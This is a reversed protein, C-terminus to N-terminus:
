VAPEEPEPEGDVVEPAPEVEPTSEPEVPAEVPEDQPTDESPESLVAIVITDSNLTFPFGNYHVVEGAPVVIKEVESM